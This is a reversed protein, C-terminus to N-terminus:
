KPVKTNGITKYIKIYVIAFNFERPFVDSPESNEFLWHYTFVTHTEM